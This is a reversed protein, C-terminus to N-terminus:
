VHARGIQCAAPLGRFLARFGETTVIQHTMRFLGPVRQPGAGAAAQPNWWTAETTASPHFNYVQIRKRIVDFPMNVTKAVIGAAFGSVGSATLRLWGSLEDWPGLTGLRAHLGMFAEYTAFQAGMYPMVGLLTPWLGSYLGRVGETRLISRVAQALSTYAPEGLRQAAFRTRLLDLPYTLCSAFASSVFGAMGSIPVAKLLGGSGPPPSSDTPEAAEILRHLERKCFEYSVFSLACYPVVMAQAAMNGKWFGRLGEEHWIRTFAHGINRYTAAPAGGGGGGGTHQIQQRIKVVDLPAIIMRSVAGAVAGSTLDVVWVSDNSGSATPMNWHGLAVAAARCAHQDAPDAACDFELGLPSTRLSPEWIRRRSRSVGSM